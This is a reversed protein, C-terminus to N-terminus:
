IYKKKFQQLASIHQGMILVTDSISPLDEENLIDLYQTSPEEKLLEKIANLIRNILQLKLISIKEAPNKKAFNSMEIYARGLQAELLRYEDIREQRMKKM